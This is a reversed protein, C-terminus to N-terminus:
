AFVNAAQRVAHDVGEAATVTLTAGDCGYNQSFVMDTKSAVKAGKTIFQNLWVRSNQVEEGVQLLVNDFTNNHIVIGDAGIVCVKGGNKFYCNRLVHGKNHNRGDEWDIHSAPDSYGNDQFYCNEFCWNVGGNPQIATDNCDTMTCNRIYCHDPQDFSYLHAISASDPDGSTPASGQRFVIRAYVANEPKDYQYYQICNKLASLFNKNADYFFIDYCRASLYLYGQFGAMNGFGFKSALNTITMYSNHRYAYAEDRNNGSDDIGGAEVAALKFGVIKRNLWGAGINFGPSKSITCNNLGSHFNYGGFFVSQCAASGASSDREGYVIANEISSYETDKFYFMQYGTATLSSAEIQVISGSFDVIMQTPIYITGYAPSVAYIQKPFVVKKMRLDSAASLIDIIALTTTEATSWDFDDANVSMVEHETYTLATEKVVEVNFTASVAGTLDSATITAIGPAVGVLVGNKVRCVVENNSSYKVLNDDYYSYPWPHEATIESLLYAQASYEEGVEITKPVRALTIGTVTRASQLGYSLDQVVVEATDAYEKRRYNAIATIEATGDAVATLVEGDSSVVEKDASTVSKGYLASLLPKALLAPAFTDNPELTYSDAGIM